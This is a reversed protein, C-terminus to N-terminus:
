ITRTRGGSLLDIVFLIIALVLVFHIFAGLVHGLSIFGLLWLVFLVIAITRLM